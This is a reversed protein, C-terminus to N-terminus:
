MICICGKFLAHLEYGPSCQCTSLSTSSCSARCTTGELIVSVAGLSYFSVNSFVESCAPYRLHLPGLLLTIFSWSSYRACILTYSHFCAASEPLIICRAEFSQFLWPCLLHICINRCRVVTNNIIGLLARLNM